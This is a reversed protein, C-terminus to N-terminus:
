EVVIEYGCAPVNGVVCPIFYIDTVNGGDWYMRNVSVSMGGAQVDGVYMFRMGRSAEPPQHCVVTITRNPFKRCEDGLQFYTLTKKQEM